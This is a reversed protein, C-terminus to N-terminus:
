LLLNENSPFIQQNDCVFIKLLFVFMFFIKARARAATIVAPMAVVEKSVQVVVLQGNAYVLITVCVFNIYNIIALSLLGLLVVIAVQDKVTAIFNNNRNVLPFIPILFLTLFMLNILTFLVGDSGVSILIIFSGFANAVQSSPM